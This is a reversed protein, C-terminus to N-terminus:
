DSDGMLESILAETESSIDGLELGHAFGTEVQERWRIQGDFQVTRTSLSQDLTVRVRAGVDFPGLLIMRAGSPSLDVLEGLIMPKGTESVVRAGILLRRRPEKRREVEPTTAKDETTM